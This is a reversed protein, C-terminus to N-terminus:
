SPLGAHSVVFQLLRMEDWGAWREETGALVHVVLTRHVTGREDMLLEVIFTQYYQGARLANSSRTRPV